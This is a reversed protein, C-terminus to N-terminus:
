RPRWSGRQGRRIITRIENLDYEEVGRRRLMPITYGAANLVDCCGTPDDHMRNFDTLALVFGRAFAAEEPTIRKPM